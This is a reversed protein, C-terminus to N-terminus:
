NSSKQDLFRRVAGPFIEEAYESGGFEITLFQHGLGPMVWLAANPLAQYLELVVEMPYFEDRDGCVLLTRVPIASLHEPSFDFDAYNDALGRLQSLLSRIQIEGNPHSRSYYKQWEESLDELVPLGRFAKRAGLTLRHAGAVLVMAELREPQQAAMHILTNAGASYGIARVRVFGLHDLLGFMDRAVNRYTFEGSPNTSRGHGRLDPIIVTYHSGFEKLFRDWYHGVMTFGHILLLPPGHGGIRYFLEVGNVDVTGQTLRLEVEQPTVSPPTGLATVVSLAATAALVRVKAVRM